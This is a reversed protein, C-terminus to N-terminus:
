TGVGPQPRVHVGNIRWKGDILKMLYGAEHLRGTADEFMVIQVLGADTEILRDMRYSSPRWVMPYGTEVMQGFIAASGFKRQIMPSAYSFAENLDNDQFAQIQQEIVATIDPNQEQANASIPPWALMTAILAIVTLRM